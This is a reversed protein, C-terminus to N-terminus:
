NGVSYKRPILEVVSGSAAPESPLARILQERPGGVLMNAPCDRTVTTGAQVVCGREIVVGPLVTVCAGLWSGSKIVVPKRVIPAYLDRRFTSAEIEHTGTLLVCHPGLRVNEGLIIFDCGDLISNISVASRPGMVLKRPDGIFVGQDISATPHINAGLMNLM